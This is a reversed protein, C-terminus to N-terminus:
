KESHCTLERLYNEASALAEKVADDAVKQANFRKMLPSLSFDVEVTIRVPKTGETEVSINLTEISKMSVKSLIYERATKEISSCLEESQHSNLEPISLEEVIKVSCM